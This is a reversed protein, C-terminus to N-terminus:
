VRHGALEELGPLPHLLGVPLEDMCSFSAEMPRNAAVIAWSIGFGRVRDLEVDLLDGFLLAQGLGDPGM